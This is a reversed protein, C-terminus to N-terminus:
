PGIKGRVSSRSLLNIPAARLNMDRVEDERVSADVPFSVDKPPWDGRLLSMELGLKGELRPVVLTFVVAMEGLGRGYTGHASFGRLDRVLLYDAPQSFLESVRGGLM